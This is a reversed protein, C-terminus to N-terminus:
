ALTLFRVPEGASCGSPGVIAFGDAAALGRLMGSGGHSTPTAHAGCLTSPVLRTVGPAGPISVTAAATDLPPLGRGLLGAVLPHAVTFLGVIAAQPNGPLGILWRRPERALLMPHGPRCAVSDIVTELGASKVASHLHDVPGAATGGTTVVLDVDDRDEIATIHDALTDPVRRVDRVEVGLRALWGPLQPGLSDRVRGDRAPGSALLEDGFILIAARPRRVATIEDHGASAILGVHAPGLLTGAAVLLEGERSEEGAPRVALGPTVDGWLRGSADISGAESRLVGVTRPPVVAGTAIRMAQGANLPGGPLMGARIEGVVVWPPDGCVAWGDMASVDRPPLPTRAAIDCALTRGVGVELPVHEVSLLSATGHAAERAEDWSPRYLTM